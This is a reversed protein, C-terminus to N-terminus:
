INNRPLEGIMCPTYPFAEYIDAAYTYSYDKPRLKGLYELKSSNLHYAVGIFSIGLFVIAKYPHFGLFYIRHNNEEDDNGTDLVNDDDLGGLDM